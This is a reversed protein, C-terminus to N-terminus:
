TNAPRMSCHKKVKTAPQGARPTTRFKRSLAMSKLGSVGFLGLVIWEGVRNNNLFKGSVKLNGDPYFSKFDGNLMGSEIMYNCHIISDNFSHETKQASLQYETFLFFILICFSVLYLNKTKM